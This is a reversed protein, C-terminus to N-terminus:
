KKGGNIYLQALSSYSDFMLKLTPEKHLMNIGSIDTVSENKEHDLYIRLDNGKQMVVECLYFPFLNSNWIHPVKTTLQKFLKVDNDDKGFFINFTDDYEIFLVVSISFIDYYHSVKGMCLASDPKKTDVKSDFFNVKSGADVDDSLMNNRCERQIVHHIIPTYFDIVACSRTSYPMLLKNDFLYEIIVNSALIIESIYKM